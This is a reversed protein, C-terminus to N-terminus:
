RATEFEQQNHQGDMGNLEVRGNVLVRRVTFTRDVTERGPMVEGRFTLSMGAAAWATLAIRRKTNALNRKLKFM